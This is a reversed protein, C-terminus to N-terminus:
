CCTCFVASELGLALRSGSPRVHEDHVVHLLSAGKGKGAACPDAREGCVVGCVAHGPHGCVGRRAAEVRPAHPARPSRWRSWVPGPPRLWCPLGPAPRPTPLTGPRTGPHVRPGRHRYPAPCRRYPGGTRWRRRVWPSCVCSIPHRPNTPPNHLSFRTVSSM